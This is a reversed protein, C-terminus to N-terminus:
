TEIQCMTRLYFLLSFYKTKALFIGHLVHIFIVISIIQFLTRLYLSMNQISALFLPGPYSLGYLSESRAPPDPSRIGTHALNEARTWVQGPAWEAEQVIPLTDKGPTVAAQAHRQGGVDM